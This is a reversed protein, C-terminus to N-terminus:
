AGFKALGGKRLEESEELVADHKKHRYEHLADALDPYSGALVMAAYIGANAAKNVGVCAVPSGAPMESMSLLSDLGGFASTGKEKDNYAMIPVGVVPVVTYSAIMGPLHAAGGAGAIIVRLGIEEAHRAYDGLREPTRHASVILDEHLVGFGDLVRAAELMIRADSSSGMIIGVEVTDTYGM